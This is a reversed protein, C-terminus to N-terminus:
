DSANWRIDYRGTADELEIELKWIGPTVELEFSDQYSAPAIFEKEWKIKGDPAILRFVLQGADLSMKEICLVNSRMDSKVEIEDVDM